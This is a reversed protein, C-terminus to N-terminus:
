TRGCRGRLLAHADAADAPWRAAEHPADDGAVGAHRAHCPQWRGCCPFLIALVDNLGADHAYRTQGDIGIGHVLHDGVRRTEGGAREVGM